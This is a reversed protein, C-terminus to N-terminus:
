PSIGKVKVKISYLGTRATVYLTKGDKSFCLNAPGEPFKIVELVQGQPSIVNVGDGSASWVRGDKDVRLGDPNPTQVFVKGTGLTGDKNVPFSRIHQKATDAVYLTKEDPSLVIGNPRDFDSLLLTVTGGKIMYVGNHPQEQQNSRIGYPPDTFYIIGSKSVYADNPSNLKKGGYSEALVTMKGDKEMRVVQRAGHLCSILRKQKDLTNGNANFSPNRFETVEGKALKYIKNGPIDSFVISGDPMAQPGETFLYKGPEKQVTARPAVFTEQGTMAMLMMAASIM